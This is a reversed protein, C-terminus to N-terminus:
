RSGTRLWDEPLPAPAAPRTQRPPAIRRVPPRVPQPIEPQPEVAPPRYNPSGPLDVILRYTAGVRPAAPSEQGPESASSFDDTTAAGLSEADPGSIDVAPRDAAAASSEGLRLQIEVAAPLSKRELSNWADSWGRGDFYRFQLSVVEPVDLRTGDVAPEANGEADTLGALPDAGADALGRSSSSRASESGPDGTNDLPTEFDLEKRVLGREAPTSFEDGGGPEFFTYHVTHLEPVRAVPAENPTGANRGVPVPNADHPTPQLVDFRMERSSGFLGFRRRQATGDTEGATGPPPVTGPLPDQIACRLDDAIQELLARCLQAREVQQQGKDFLESYTSMLMWLAALLVGCLATALLMEVLTYGQGHRGRVRHVHRLHGPSCGM